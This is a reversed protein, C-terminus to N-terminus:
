AWTNRPCSFQPGADRTTRSVLPEFEAAFGFQQGGRQQRAPVTRRQQQFQFSSRGLTGRGCNWKSGATSIQRWLGVDSGRWRCGTAAACWRRHRGDHWGLKRVVDHHSSPAPLWKRQRAVRPLLSSQLSKPASRPGGDPGTQSANSGRSGAASPSRCCPRAGQFSRREAQPADGASSSSGARHRSVFLTPLPSKQWRACRPSRVLWWM